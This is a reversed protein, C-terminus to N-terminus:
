RGWTVLTYVVRGWVEVNFWLLGILYIWRRFKRARELWVRADFSIYLAFSAIAGIAFLGGLIGVIWRFVTM